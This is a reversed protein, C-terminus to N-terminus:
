YGWTRSLPPLSTSYMSLLYPELSRRVGGRAHGICVGQLFFLICCFFLVARGLGICGHRGSLEM